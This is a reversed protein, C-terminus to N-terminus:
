SLGQGRFKRVESRSFYQELCNVFNKCPMSTEIGYSPIRTILRSVTFSCHCTGQALENVSDSVDRGPCLGLAEPPLRSIPEMFATRSFVAFYPFHDLNTNRTISLYFGGAALFQGVPGTMLKWDGVRIAARMTQTFTFNNHLSYPFPYGHGGFPDINHLIETRPSPLGQSITTWMNYGDLPKTGNLDGGALGALMTPFWDSIHMLARSTTGRVRPHLLPSNVFGVARVGGEWLSAKGAKLPWNSGGNSLQGGNDTSFIFVTNNWLGREELADAVTGVAEDMCTTMGAFAKRKIDKIHAYQKLYQAPVQLPIHVAQMSLLMFFPQSTNQQAIIQKARDAFLHTGYKGKVGMAVREQDRFDFGGDSIHSYYDQMGLLFGFFTDFGRRTPWCAKKYLGLHWKGIYHTAYGSEKLKQAITIEDLNLCSKMRTRIIFHQHGTHIQYRGTMLQERSPSCIPQVYYNELKVGEAAMSDLVPTKIESGHYGIDNYGYDDSRMLLTEETTSNVSFREASRPDEWCHTCEIMAKTGWQSQSSM